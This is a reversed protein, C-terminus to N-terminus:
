TSACSLNRLRLCRHDGCTQGRCGEPRVGLYGGTGPTREPVRDTGDLGSSLRVPLKPESLVAIGHGGAQGGVRYHLSYLEFVGSAWKM